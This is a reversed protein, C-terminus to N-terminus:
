LTWLESHLPQLIFNFRYFPRLSCVMTQGHRHHSPSTRVAHCFTLPLRFIFLQCTTIAAVISDEWSQIEEEKQVEQLESTNLERPRTKGSLGREILESKKKFINFSCQKWRILLFEMKFDFLTQFLKSLAWIFFKSSKIKWVEACLLKREGGQGRGTVESKPSGRRRWQGRLRWLLLWGADRVCAVNVYSRMGTLNCKRSPAQVHKNWGVDRDRGNGVGVDPATRRSPRMLKWETVWELRM